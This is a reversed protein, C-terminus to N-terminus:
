TKPKALPVAGIGSFLLWGPLHCALRANPGGMGSEPGFTSTCVVGIAKGDTALIPSGSMGPRIGEASNHIWLGAGMHEVKCTAWKGNLSMLWAEHAEDAIDSIPLTSCSNVLRDYDAAQLSLEQEDPSGLVAIDAVPDAFLCEAWTKTEEGLPGILTKYTRENLLSISAAPPQFPLCHAATIVVRKEPGEVVFGRGGNVTVIASKQEYGPTM